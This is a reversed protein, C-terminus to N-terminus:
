FIYITGTATASGRLLIIKDKNNNTTTSESITLQGNSKVLFYGLPNRNLGHNVQIDLGSVFSIDQIFNGKLLAINDIKQFATSINDQLKQTNFDISFVKKIGM